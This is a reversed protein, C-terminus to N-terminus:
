SVPRATGPACYGSSMTSAIANRNVLCASGKVPCTIGTSAPKQNVQSPTLFPARHLTPMNVDIGHYLYSMSGAGTAGMVVERQRADAVSRVRATHCM